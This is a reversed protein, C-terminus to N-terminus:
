KTQSEPLLVGNAEFLYTKKPEKIAEIEESTKGADKAYHQQEEVTMAEVFAKGEVIVEKGSIDMPMFFGYDKFKVMAEDDKLNLRMWCGKSQCVENVTSKFKINITDGPVLSKYKELVENESLMNEDTIKDGFSQYSMAMAQPEDQIVAKEETNKCGILLTLSIIAFALNKM